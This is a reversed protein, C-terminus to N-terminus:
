SQVKDLSARNTDGKNILQRQGTSEMADSWGGRCYLLAPMEREEERNILNYHNKAYSVFGRGVM